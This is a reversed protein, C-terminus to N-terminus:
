EQGNKRLSLYYLTFISDILTTFLLCKCPTLVILKCSNNLFFFFDMTLFPVLASRSVPLVNQRHTIPFNDTNKKGKVRQIM